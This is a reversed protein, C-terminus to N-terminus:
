ARRNPSVSTSRWTERAVDELASWAQSDVPLRQRGGEQAVTEDAGLVEGGGEGQAEADPEDVELVRREVLVRGREHGGVDRTRM